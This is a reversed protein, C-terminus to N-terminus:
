EWRRAWQTFPVRSREVWHNCLLYKTGYFSLPYNGSARAYYRNFGLEDKAQEAVQEALPLAPNHRYRKLVPYPIAFTNRSYELDCLRDIEEEPLRDRACYDHFVRRVMPGMKEPEVSASPESTVPIGSLASLPVAANTLERYREVSLIVFQPQNDRLALIDSSESLRKVQEMDSLENTSAMIIM